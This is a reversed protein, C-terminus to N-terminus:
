LTRGAMCSEFLGDLMRRTDAPDRWNNTPGADAPDACCIFTRSEVRAVDSEDSRAYFSNPRKAPNLRVLTDQRVLMESLEDWEAQSGDCWRVAAPRCLAAIRRVWDNLGSHQVEPGGECASTANTTANIRM